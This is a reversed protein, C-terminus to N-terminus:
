VSVILLRQIRVFRQKQSRYTTLVAPVLTIMPQLPLYWEITSPTPIVPIARQNGLSYFSGYNSPIMTNSRAKPLESPNRLKPIDPHNPGSPKLHEIALKIDGGVRDLENQLVTDGVYPFENSLRQLPTLKRRM